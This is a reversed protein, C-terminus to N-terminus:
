KNNPKKGTCGKALYEFYVWVGPQTKNRYFSVYDGVLHWYRKAADGFIAMAQKRDLHGECVSYGLNEFFNVLRVVLFFEDSSRVEFSEFAKILNKSAAEDNIGSYHQNILVRSKIYEDSDWTQHLDMLLVSYRAKKIHRLQIVAYIATIIIALAMVATSIALVANWTLMWDINAM